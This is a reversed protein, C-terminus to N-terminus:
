LVWIITVAFKILQSLPEVMQIFKMQIPECAGSFWVRKSKSKSLPVKTWFMTGLGVDDLATVMAVICRGIWIHNNKDIGWLLRGVCLFQLPTLFKENGVKSWKGPSNSKIGALILHHLVFVFYFLLFQINAVCFFVQWIKRGLFIRSDFTEFGWFVKPCGRWKFDLTGGGGGKRGPRLDQNLNYGLPTPPVWQYGTKYDVLIEEQKCNTLRAM